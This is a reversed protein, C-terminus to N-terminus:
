AFRFRGEKIDALKLTLSDGDLEYPLYSPWCGYGKNKTGLGDITFTRGCKRCTIDTGHQEYGQYGGCVDCADFATRPKGDSGLVAFYRIKIGDDELEYFKVKDSLESLSIRITDDKKGDTDTNVSVEKNGIINTTLVVVVLIIMTGAIMIVKNKNIIDKIDKM